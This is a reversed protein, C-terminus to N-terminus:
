LKRLIAVGAIMTFAFAMAWDSLEPVTSNTTAIVIHSTDGRSKTSDWNMYAVYINGSSDFAISALHAFANGSLPDSLTEIDWGTATQQAFQIGSQGDINYALTITGDLSTTAYIPGGPNNDRTDIYTRTWTGNKNRVWQAVYSNQSNYQYEDYVHPVGTSNFALKAVYDDDSSSFNEVPSFTVGNFETYKLYYIKNSSSSFMDYILIGVKTSNYVALDGYLGHSGSEKIVIQPSTWHGTTGTILYLADEPNQTINLCCVQFLIYFTGDYYKAILPPATTGTNSVLSGQWVIETHWESGDYYTHNLYGNVKNSDETYYFVHPENNVVSMSIMRYGAGSGTTSMTARMINKSHWQTGDYWTVNINYTDSGDVYAVWIKGDSGVGVSPSRIELSGEAPSIIYKWTHAQVAGGAFASSALLALLITAIGILVISRM